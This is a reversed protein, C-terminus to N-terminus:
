DTEANTGRVIWRPIVVGWPLPTQKVNNEAQRGFIETVLERGKGRRVRVKPSLYVRKQNRLQLERTQPSLLASSVYWTTKSWAKEDFYDESKRAAGWGRGVSRRLWGPYFRTEVREEGVPVAQVQLTPTYRNRKYISKRAANELRRQALKEFSSKKTDREYWYDDGHAAKYLRKKQKKQLAKVDEPPALDKPVEEHRAIMGMIVPLRHGQPTRALRQLAPSNSGAWYTKQRVWRGIHREYAQRLTNKDALGLKMELRALAVVDGRTAAKEMAQRGKFRGPTFRATVLRVLEEQTLDAM